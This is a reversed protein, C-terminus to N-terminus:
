VLELVMRVVGEELEWVLSGPGLRAHLGMAFAVCKRQTPEAKLMAAIQHRSCAIALAEPTQGRETTASLDAGHDLLLRVVSYRGYLVAIHLSTEGSLTHASMDAGQDLLRQVDEERGYMSAIVLSLPWSGFIGGQEERLSFETSARWLAPPM